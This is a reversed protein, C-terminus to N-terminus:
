EEIFTPTDISELPQETVIPTNFINSNLTSKIGFIIEVDPAEASLEVKPINNIHAKLIDKVEGNEKVLITFFGKLNGQRQQLLLMLDICKATPLVSVSLTNIEEVDYYTYYTPHIGQQGKTVTRSDIVCSTVGDLEIGCVVVKNQSADYVKTRRNLLNSANDAILDKAKGLVDNLFTM